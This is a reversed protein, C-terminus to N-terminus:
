SVSISLACLTSVKKGTFLLLIILTSLNFFQVLDIELACQVM